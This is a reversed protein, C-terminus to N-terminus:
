KGGYMKEKVSSLFRETFSKNKRESQTTRESFRIQNIDEKKLIIKEKILGYNDFKIVLVNNKKLVNQGLKYFKGKTFVREIYFWENENNQSRIQPNGLIKIVDNKNTKNVILKESRNILFNIGHTKQPEKLQCSNLILIFLIGIFSKKHFKFLRIM